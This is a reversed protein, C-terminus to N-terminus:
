RKFIPSFRRRFRRRGGVGRRVRHVHRFPCECTEVGLALRLNVMQYLALVNYPRTPSVIDMSDDHLELYKTNIFYCRKERPIAPSELADLAEFRRIGSSRSGRSICGPRLARVSVPM